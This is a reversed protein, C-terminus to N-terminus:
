KFLKVFRALVYKDPIQIIKCVDYTDGVLETPLTYLLMQYEVFQTLFKHFM